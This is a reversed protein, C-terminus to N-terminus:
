ADTYVYVRLQTAIGNFNAANNTYSKTQKKKEANTKNQSKQSTFFPEHGKKSM